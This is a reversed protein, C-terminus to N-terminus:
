ENELEKLRQLKRRRNFKILMTPDKYRLVSLELGERNYYTDLKDIFLQFNKSLKGNTEYLVPKRNNNEYLGRIFIKDHSMCFSVYNQDNCVKWNPETFIENINKFPIDLIGWYHEHSSTFITYSTAAYIKKFLDYQERSDIDFVAYHINNLRSEISVAKDSKVNNRFTDLIKDLYQPRFREDNSYSGYHTYQEYFSLTDQAVVIIAKKIKKTIKLVIFRIIFFLFIICFIIAWFLLADELNAPISLISM